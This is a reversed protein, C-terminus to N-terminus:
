MAWADIRVFTHTPKYREALLTAARLSPARHASQARHSSDHLVINAARGCHNLKDIKAILRAAIQEGNPNSWDSTMANWLVPTLGLERAISFTGPRRAGFPPRFFKVPAGTIQELTDRAQILEERIRRASSRALSPHTYSHNGVLHGEAAIRRVLDPQAAAHRGLLFFTASIQHAALIDLLQPTFDPNPGDDFTLALEKPNDPAILATGFIRSAPYLSAYAYGGAALGLAAAAGLGAILDQSFSSM